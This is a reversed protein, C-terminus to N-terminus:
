ESQVCQPLQPEFNGSSGNCILVDQMNPAIVYNDNCSYQLKQILTFHEMSETTVNIELEVGYQGHSVTRADGCDLVCFQTVFPKKKTRSDFKAVQFANSLQFGNVMKIVLQFLQVKSTTNKASLRLKLETLIFRKESTKM